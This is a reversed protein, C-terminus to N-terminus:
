RNKKIIRKICHRGSSKGMTKKKELVTVWNLSDMIEHTAFAELSLTQETDNTTINIEKTTNVGGRSLDKV